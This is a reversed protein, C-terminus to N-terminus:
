ISKWESINREDTSFAIGIKTVPRGDIAYKDAYGKADIQALATDATDNYKLEMIYYGDRRISEFSQIGVPYKRKMAM